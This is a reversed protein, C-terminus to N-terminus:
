QGQNIFMDFDGAAAAKLLLAQWVNIYAVSQDLEARNLAYMALQLDPMNTLGNKYLVSKQTYADSAATYQLPVEKMSQLSNQIRQDSLILQNQLQMNAQDYENRYADEVFRQARVQQRVRFPSLLNWAVSVGVVYNYRTPNIGDSYRTSYAGPNEPTYDYNFGSARAQYIGFLTVGPMISRQAVRAASKAQDIRAQYFKMQPNQVIDRSTEFIAPLKELFTTDLAFSTTTVNLLIALDNSGKQENNQMEILMLKARASESNALSSDVGANLGSLVRARVNERIFEARKLNAEANSVFRQAVLLNLYAGAIKVQHIFIEQQLDASDQRAQADALQIRSRVRGFTFVEWNTNLIYLAGFAANWSETRYSPGASSVGLVGVAALPGFQGNVTGYNQQVSAIVNPLYENRANRTLATSAHLYNRKAQIRQYNQVGNDVAESLTLAVPQASVQILALLFFLGILVPNSFLRHCVPRTEVRIRNRKNMRYTYQSEPLFSSKLTYPQLRNGDPPPAEHIFDQGVRQDRWQQHM